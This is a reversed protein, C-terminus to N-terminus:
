RGKIPRFAEVIAKGIEWGLRATFYVVMGVGKILTCVYDRRRKQESEVNGLMGREESGIDMKEKGKWEFEAKKEVKGESLRKMEVQIKESDRKRKRGEVVVAAVVAAVAVDVVGRSEVKGTARTDLRLVGGASDMEVLTERNTMNVLVVRGDRSEVVLTEERRCTRVAPHELIYRGERRRVLRCEGIRAVVGGRKEAPVSLRFMKKMEGTAPNRRSFWRSSFEYFPADVFPGFLLSGQVAHIPLEFMQTSTYAGETIRWLKNLDNPDGLSRADSGRSPTIREPTPSREQTTTSPPEAFEVRPSFTVCPPPSLLLPSFPRSLRHSTLRRSSIVPSTQHLLETSSDFHSISRQPPSYAVKLPAPPPVSDLTTTSSCHSSCIDIFPTSYFSSRSPSECYRKSTDMMM